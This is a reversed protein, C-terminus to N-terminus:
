NEIVSLQSVYGGSEDIAAIRKMENTDLNYWYLSNANHQILMYGVKSNCGEVVLWPLFLHGAFLSTPDTPRNIISDFCLKHFKIWISEKLIWIDLETPSAQYAFCLSEKIELLKMHYNPISYRHQPLRPVMVSEMFEETAINLPQVFVENINCPRPILFVENINRLRPREHPREATWYLIGKVVVSSFKSLTVDQRLPPTSQRWSEENESDLSCIYCHVLNPSQGTSLVVAKYKQTSADYVLVLYRDLSQLCPLLQRRHCTIADYVSLCTIPSSKDQDVLVLSDCCAVSFFLPRCLFPLSGLKTAILGTEDLRYSSYCGNSRDAGKKWSFIMVKSMCQQLHVQCFNSDSIMHCWHECVSKFRVLSKTPLRMLIDYLIDQPLHFGNNRREEMGKKKDTALTTGISHILMMSYSCIGLIQQQLRGYSATAPMSVPINISANFEETATNM